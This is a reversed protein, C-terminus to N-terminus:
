VNRSTVIEDSGPPPAPQLPAVRRAVIIIEQPAGLELLLNSLASLARPRSIVSLITYCIIRIDALFSANRIYFLSLRSKWPRVLQNYSINADECGELIEALDSFVISAPDTIGPKVDLLHREEDTYLAVERDVNPRPGVLSMTGILVNLLQMIEDLKVKRILHGVTTIRDDDAKTSDINSKDANVVMSRIKIMTFPKGGRGIRKPLYFPSHRDQLWVAFLVPLILPSVLILGTLSTLIELGRKLM